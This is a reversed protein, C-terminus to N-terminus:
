FSLTVTMKTIEELEQRCLPCETSSHVSERMWRELCQGHFNHGCRTITMLEGKSFYELCISCEEAALEGFAYATENANSKQEIEMETEHVHTPKFNALVAKVIHHRRINPDDCMYCEEEFMFKAECFECTMVWNGVGDIEIITKAGDTLSSFWPMNQTMLLYLVAIVGRLFM